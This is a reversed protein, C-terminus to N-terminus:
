SATVYGRHGFRGVEAAIKAPDNAADDESGGQGSGGKGGKGDKGDPKTTVPPRKTTDTKTVNLLAALQQVDEAISDEDDGQVRALFEDPLGHEKAINRVLENRQTVKQYALLDNLQKELNAIKSDAQNAKQDSGELEAVRTKLTDREQVVPLYKKEVRAVRGQVIGNVHKVFDAKTAFVVSGDGPDTGGGEHDDVEEPTVQANPDPQQGLMPAADPTGPVVATRFHIRM